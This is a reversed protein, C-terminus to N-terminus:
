DKEGLYDYLMFLESNPFRKKAKFYYEKAKNDDNGMLYLDILRAYPEEHDDNLELVKLWDQIIIEDDFYGNKNLARWAYLLHNAPDLEVAKDLNQYIEGGANHDVLRNKGITEVLLIAKHLYLWPNRPDMKLKMDIWKIDDNIEQNDDSDSYKLRDPLDLQYDISMSIIEHNDDAVINGANVGVCDDCILGAGTMRWLNADIFMDCSCSPCKEILYIKKKLYNKISLLISSVINKNNILIKEGVCSYGVSQLSSQKVENYFTIYPDIELLYKERSM